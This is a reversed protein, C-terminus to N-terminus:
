PVIRSNNENSKRTCLMRSGSLVGDKHLSIIGLGNYTYTANSSHPLSSHLLLSSSWITLLSHPLVQLFLYTDKHALFFSRQTCILNRQLSWLPHEPLPELINSGRDWIVQTNWFCDQHSTGWNVLDLTNKFVSLYNPVSPTHLQFSDSKFPFFSFFLSLEKTVYCVKDCWWDLHVSSRM